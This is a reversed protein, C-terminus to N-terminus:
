NRPTRKRGNRSNASIRGRRADAAVVFVPADTVVRAAFEHDSLLVPAAASGAQLMTTSAVNDALVTYGDNAAQKLAYQAGTAGGAGPKNVIEIPQGM